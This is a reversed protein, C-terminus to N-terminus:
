RKGKKRKAAFVRISINTTVQAVRPRCDGDWRNTRCEMDILAEADERTDFREATLLDGWCHVLGGTSNFHWYGTESCIVFFSEKTVTM